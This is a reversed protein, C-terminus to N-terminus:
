GVVNLVDFFDEYIIGILVILVVSFSILIIQKKFKKWIVYYASTRFLLNLM